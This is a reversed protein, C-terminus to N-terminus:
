SCNKSPVRPRFSVERAPQLELVCHSFLQSWLLFAQQGCRLFAPVDTAALTHFCLLPSASRGGTIPHLEPDPKERMSVTGNSLNFLKEFGFSGDGTLNRERDTAQGIEPIEVIV